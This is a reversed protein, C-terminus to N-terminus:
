KSREEAYWYREGTDKKWEVVARVHMHKTLWYFRKLIEKSKLVKFLYTPCNDMKITTNYHM